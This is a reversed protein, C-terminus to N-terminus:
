LSHIHIIQHTDDYLTFTNNELTAYSHASNEKPLSISGANLIHIGNVKKFMPVHIHGFIFIDNENLPPLHQEHFIHGHSLCIQRKNEHIITYDGLCPFDLVMQDVESDCNGRVAIIKHKLANLAALVLKPNYDMPLDNRPGHYLLDGILLLKDAQHLQMAEVIKNAYYASGHIDSTIVYKM